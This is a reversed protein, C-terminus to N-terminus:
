NSQFSSFDLETFAMCGTSPFNLTSIVYVKNSLFMVRTHLLCTKWFKNVESQNQYRTETRAPLYCLLRNCSRYQQTLRFRPITNSFLSKDLVNSVSKVNAKGGCEPMNTRSQKFINCNLYTSFCSQTHRLVKRQGGVIFIRNTGKVPQKYPLAITSFILFYINQYFVSEVDNCFIKTPKGM